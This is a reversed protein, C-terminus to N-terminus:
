SFVSLYEEITNKQLNKLSNITKIKQELWYNEDQILKVITKELRDGDLRDVDFVSDELGSGIYGIQNSLTPLGFAFAEFLKLKVGSLNLSYNFFIKARYYLDYLEESTANFVFKLNPTNSISKLFLNDPKTLKGAIVLNVVNKKLLPELQRVIDIASSKNDPLDLNGVYLIFNDRNLFDNDISAIKELQVYPRLVQTKSKDNNSDAETESIFLLRDFISLLNINKEIWKYKFSEVWYSWSKLLNTKEQIAFYQFHKSEINHVRLFVKDASIYPKLSLYTELTKLHEVLIFDYHRNLQQRCLELNVSSLKRYVMSVPKISLLDLPKLKQEFCCYTNFIKYRNNYEEFPLLRSKDQYVAVLDIQYDFQQFFKIKGWVDKVGGYDDPFPLDFTVILITKKDKM